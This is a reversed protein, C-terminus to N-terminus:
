TTGGYILVRDNVAALSAAGASSSDQLEFRSSGDTSLAFWAVSTSYSGVSVRGGASSTANIVAIATAVSAVRKGDLEPWVNVPSVDTAM